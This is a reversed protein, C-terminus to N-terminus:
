LSFQSFIGRRMDVAAQKTQINEDFQVLPDYVPLM